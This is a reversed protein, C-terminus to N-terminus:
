APPSASPGAAFAVNCVCRITPEALFQRVTVQMGFEERLRALLQVALFSHGGVEFFNAEPDVDEVELLDRFIAAVADTTTPELPPQRM